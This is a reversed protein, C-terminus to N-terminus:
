NENLAFIRYPIRFTNQGSESVLSAAEALYTPLLARGRGQKVLEIISNWSDVEVVREDTGVRKLTMARFPCNVDSNVLLPLDDTLQEKIFYNVVLWNTAVLHYNLNKFDAYTIVLQEDFNTGNVIDTSKKLKFNYETLAYQKKHLVLYNFLLESIVVDRGVQNSLKTKLNATATLVTQVYQYTLEGATTPTLGRNSRIFLQAHLEDEWSKLRATINSQSYQLTKATQNISRREYLERYISFDQIQM